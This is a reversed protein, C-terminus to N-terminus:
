GLITRAFRHHIQKQDCVIVDFCTLTFAVRTKGRTGDRATKPRRDFINIFLNALRAQWFPPHAPSLVADAASFTLQNQDSYTETTVEGFALSSWTRITIKNDSSKSTNIFM